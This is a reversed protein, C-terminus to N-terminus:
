SKVLVNLIKSLNQPEELQGRAKIDDDHFRSFSIVSGNKRM